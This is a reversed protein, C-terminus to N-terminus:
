NQKDAALCARAIFFPDNAKDPHANKIEEYRNLAHCYPAMIPAYGENSFRGRKIEMLKQQARPEKINLYVLLKLLRLLGAKETEQAKEWKSFYDTYLKNRNELKEILSLAAEDDVEGKTISDAIAIAEPSKPSVEQSRVPIDVSASQSSTHEPVTLPIAQPMVPTGVPPTILIALPEMTRLSRHYPPTVSPSKASHEDEEPIPSFTDRELESQTLQHEEAKEIIQTEEEKAMAEKKSPSNNKSPSLTEFQCQIKSPRLRRPGPTPSTTQGNPSDLKTPTIIPSPESPASANGQTDVSLPPQKSTQTTSLAAKAQKCVALIYDELKTPKQSDALKNRNKWKELSIANLYVIKNKEVHLEVIKHGFGFCKAFIYTLWCYTRIGAKQGKLSGVNDNHDFFIRSEFFGEIRHNIKNTM